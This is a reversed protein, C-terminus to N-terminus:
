RRGSSDNPSPFCSFEPPRGMQSLRAADPGGVHAGSWRASGPAQSCLCICRSSRAGQQQFAFWVAVITGGLAGAVILTAARLWGLRHLAYLVPAGWVLAGAYAIPLGFAAIVTLERLSQYWNLRFGRIWAYAMAGIWYAIPAVLPGILLGRIPHRM